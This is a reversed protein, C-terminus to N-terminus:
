RCALASRNTPTTCQKGGFPRIDWEPDQAELVEELEEEPLFEEEDARRLQAVLDKITTELLAASQDLGRQGVGEVGGKVGGPLTDGVLRRSPGTPRNRSPRVRFCFRFRSLDSASPRPRSDSRAGAGRHPCAAVLRRVPDFGGQGAQVVQKHDTPAV